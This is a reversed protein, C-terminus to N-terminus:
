KDARGIARPPERANMFRAPSSSILKVAIKTQKQPFDLQHLDTSAATLMGRSVCFALAQGDRVKQALLFLFFRM